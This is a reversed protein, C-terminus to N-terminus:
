SLSPRRQTLAIAPPPNRPSAISVPQLNYRGGSVYPCFNPSSVDEFATTIDTSTGEHADLCTGASGGNILDLGPDRCCKQYTRCTFAEAEALAVEGFAGSHVGGSSGRLTQLSDNTVDDLSHVWYLILM